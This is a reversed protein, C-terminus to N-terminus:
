KNKDFLSRFTRKGTLVKVVQGLRKFWLPLVTYESHHWSYLTDYDDKYKGRIVSLITAASKLRDELVRQDEAM